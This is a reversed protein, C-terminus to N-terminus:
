CCKSCLRNVGFIRPISQELIKAVAKSWVPVEEVQMCSKRKESKIYGEPQTMYREEELKGNMFATVVDMQHILM